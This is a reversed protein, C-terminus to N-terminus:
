GVRITLRDGVLGPCSAHLSAEGRLKTPALIVLASGHYTRTKADQFSEVGFPNASGARLLRAAGQVSFSIPVAADAVRRGAADLIDAFVYGLDGPEGGIRDREATQRINAPPGTTVLAKRAIEQGRDYAVAVLEGPAYGIQFAATRHDNPGISQRGVELGNLLLRVQDGSTYARVIMPEGKQHPWTWSALEDPWGWISLVERKGPPTPRQVFLELNSRGWVVDRFFSPPRKRGILDIDGCGPQYAPYDWQFVESDRYPGSPRATLPV